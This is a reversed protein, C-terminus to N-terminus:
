GTARGNDLYRRPLTMRTEEPEPSTIVARVDGCWPCEEIRYLRTFKHDKDPPLLEELVRKGKGFNCGGSILCLPRM